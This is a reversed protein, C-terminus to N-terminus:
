PLVQNQRVVNRAGNAGVVRLLKRQNAKAAVVLVVSQILVRNRRAAAVKRAVVLLVSVPRPAVKQKRKKLILWLHNM